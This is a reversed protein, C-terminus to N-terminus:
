LCMTLTARDIHCKNIHYKTILVANLMAPLGPCTWVMHILNKFQSCYQIMINNCHHCLGHGTLTVSLSECEMVTTVGAM